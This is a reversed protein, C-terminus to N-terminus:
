VAANPNSPSNILIDSASHSLSLPLSHLPLPLPSSLTPPYLPFKSHPHPLLCLIVCSFCLSSLKLTIKQTIQQIYHCLPWSICSVIQIICYPHHRKAITKFEHKNGNVTISSMNLFCFRQMDYLNNSLNILYM